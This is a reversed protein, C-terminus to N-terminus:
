VTIAVKIFKLFMCGGAGDLNSSILMSRTRIRYNLRHIAPSANTKGIHITATIYFPPKLRRQITSHIAFIRSIDNM